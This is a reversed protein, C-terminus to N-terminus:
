KSKVLVPPRTDVIVALRKVGVTSLQAHEIQGGFLLM